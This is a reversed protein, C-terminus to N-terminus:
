SLPSIIPETVASSFPSQLKVGDVESASILCSNVTSAVSLAPLVLAMDSLNMMVTSKVSGVAGIISCTM